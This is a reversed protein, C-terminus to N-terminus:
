SAQWGCAREVKERLRSLAREVGRCQRAMARPTQTHRRNPYLVPHRKPATLADQQEQLTWAPRWPELRGASRAGLAGPSTWWPPAPHPGCSRRTTTAPHARWRDSGWATPHEAPSRQTAKSTTLAPTAWAKAGQKGGTTSGAGHLVATDPPAPHTVSPQLRAKKPGGITGHTWPLPTSPTGTPKGHHGHCARTYALSSTRCSQPAHANLHPAPRLDTDILHLTVTAPQVLSTRRFAIPFSRLPSPTPNHIWRGTSGSAPPRNADYM